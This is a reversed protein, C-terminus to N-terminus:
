KGRAAYRILKVQIYRRIVTICGYCNTGTSVLKDGYLSIDRKSSILFVSVPFFLKTTLWLLTDAIRQIPLLLAWSIEPNLVNRVCDSNGNRNRRGAIGGLSCDQLLVMFLRVCPLIFARCKISM